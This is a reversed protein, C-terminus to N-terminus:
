PPANNESNPFSQFIAVPKEVIKKRKNKQGSFLLMHVVYVCVFGYVLIYSNHM